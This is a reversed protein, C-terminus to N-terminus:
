NKKNSVLEKFKINLNNKSELLLDRKNVVVQKQIKSSFMHLVDSLTNSGDASYYTCHQIAKANEIFRKVALKNGDTINFKFQSAKLFSNM